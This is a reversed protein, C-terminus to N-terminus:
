KENLLMAEKIWKKLQTKPIDKEAYVKIHRMGKGTGELLKKPDSLKVAKMFGLNIYATNKFTYIFAINGKYIFTLNRWKVAETIKKDTTLFVDRILLALIRKLEPLQLLVNEIKKDM